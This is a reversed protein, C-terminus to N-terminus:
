TNKKHSSGIEKNKRFSFSIECEKKQSPLTLFIKNVAAKEPDGSFFSFFHNQNYNEKHHDSVLHFKHYKPKPHLFICITCM